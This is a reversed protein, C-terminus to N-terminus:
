EKLLEEIEKPTEIFFRFRNQINSLAATLAKIRKELYDNSARTAIFENRYEYHKKIVFEVAGSNTKIGNGAKVKDLIAQLEEPLNSILMIKNNLRNRQRKNKKPTRHTNRCWLHVLGLRGNPPICFLGCTSILLYASHKIPYTEYNINKNLNQFKLQNPKKVAYKRWQFPRLYV